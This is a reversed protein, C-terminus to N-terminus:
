ASINVFESFCDLFYRTTTISVIARNATLQLLVFIVVASLRVVVTLLSTLCCMSLTAFSATVACSSRMTTCVVACVVSRSSNSVSLGASGSVCRCGRFAAMRWCAVVSVFCDSCAVVCVSACCLLCVVVSMCICPLPWQSCCVAVFCAVLTLLHVSASSPVSPQTVPM